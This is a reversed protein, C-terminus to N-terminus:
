NESQSPLQTFLVSYESFFLRLISNILASILLLKPDVFYESENPMRIGDMSSVFYVSCLTQSWDVEPIADKMM